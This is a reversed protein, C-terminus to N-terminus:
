GLRLKGMFEESSDFTEDAWNPIDTIQEAFFDAARLRSKVLSGMVLGSGQCLLALAGAGKVFDRRDM